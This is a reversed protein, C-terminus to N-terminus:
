CRERLAPRNLASREAHLKEKRANVILANAKFGSREMRRLSHSEKWSELAHQSFMQYVAVAAARQHKCKTDRLVLRPANNTACGTATKQSSVPRLALRRTKLQSRQSCHNKLAMLIPVLANPNQFVSISLTSMDSKALV